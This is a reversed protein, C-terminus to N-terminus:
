LMLVIIFKLCMQNAPVLFLKHWDLSPKALEEVTYMIESGRTVMSIQHVVAVCEQIAVSKDPLNNYNNYINVSAVCVLINRLINM